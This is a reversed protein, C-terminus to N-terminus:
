DVNDKHVKLFSLAKTNMTLIIDTLYDLDDLTKTFTSNFQRSIKTKFM